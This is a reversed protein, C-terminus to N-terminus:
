SVVVVTTRSIWGSPTHCGPEMRPRKSDFPAARPSGFPSTAAFSLITRQGTWVAVNPYDIYPFRGHLDAYMGAVEERQHFTAGERPRNDPTDYELGYHEEPNSATWHVPDTVYEWIESPTADIVIEAKDTVYM